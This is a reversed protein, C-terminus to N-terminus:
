SALTIIAHREENWVQITADTLIMDKVGDYDKDHVDLSIQTDDITTYRINEMDLLLGKAPYVQSLVPHFVVEIKGYATVIEVVDVGYKKIVPGQGGAMKSMGESNIANLLTSGCFFVKDGSAEMNAIAALATNFKDITFGGSISLNNTTIYSIVGGSIYLANGASDVDKKREGFLLQTEIKRKHLELIKTRRAKRKDGDEAYRPSKLENRTIEVADKFIQSYNYNESRLIISGEPSRTGEGFAGGMVVLNGAAIAAAATTGYGRQVTVQNTSTRATVRMQEGTAPNKLIDGTRLVVNLVGGTLTLTTAADDVAAIAVTPIVRSDGIWEVKQNETTDTYGKGKLMAVLPNAGNKYWIRDVLKVSRKRQTDQIQTTNTGYQPM